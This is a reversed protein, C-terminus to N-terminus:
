IKCALTHSFLHCQTLFIVHCTKTDSKTYLSVTLTAEVYGWIEDFPNINGTKVVTHVQAAATVGCDTCKASVVAGYKEIQPVTTSRLILCTETPRPPFAFCTSNFLYVGHM